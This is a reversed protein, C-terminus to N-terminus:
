MPRMWGVASASKSCCCMPRINAFIHFAVATEAEFLTIPAGANVSEVYAFADRLDDDSVLMGGLRISENMRVLHPSTYVHVSLDAAELIARLYAITSGKGNTGAVHITPPLRREPNGLQAMLRQMRELSLDITNPHLSSLRALIESLPSSTPATESM